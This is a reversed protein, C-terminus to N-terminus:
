KFLRSRLDMRRRRNRRRKMMVAGAIFVALASLGGAIVPWSLIDIM